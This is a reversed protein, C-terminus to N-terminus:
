QSPASNTPIDTATPLSTSTATPLSTATATPLDTSTSTPLNTPTATSTETPFDPVVTVGPIPTRTPINPVWLRQGTYITTSGGMCNARQLQPYTLGYSLAVRYLTDGPRVVHNKVWGFPAGCPIVTVTPVAPVYLAYGTPLDSSTLCNIASLSEPTTKYRQALTYVTDGAGALIRVWGTPSLPVCVTTTAAALLETATPSASPSAVATETATATQVSPTQTETPSPFSLPLTPPIQTPTAQAPLNEALALAIGGLVLVVSIIAIIVGSGLQRLSQM